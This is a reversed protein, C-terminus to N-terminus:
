DKSKIIKGVKIVQGKRSIKYFYVGKSLHKANIETRHSTLDYQSILKGDYLFLDLQFETSMDYEQDIDINIYNSIPNPFINILDADKTEEKTTTPILNSFLLFSKSPGIISDYNCCNVKGTVIYENNSTFIMQSPSEDYPSYVVLSSLSDGNESFYNIQTNLVTDSTENVSAIVIRNYHDEIFNTPLNLSYKEDQLLNLSNDFRFFHTNDDVSNRDRCLMGIDGNNLIESDLDIFYTALCSNDLAESTSEELINLDVDYTESKIFENDVIYFLMLEGANNKLLSGGKFSENEFTIQNSIEGENNVIFLRGEPDGLFVPRDYVALVAYQNFGIKEVDILALECNDPFQTNSILAGDSSFNFIEIQRFGLLGGAYFGDCVYTENTVAFLSFTGNENEFLNFKPLYQSSYAVRNTWLTDGQSNTKVLYTAFTCGDIVTVGPTYCFESAALLFGEDTTEILSQSVLNSQDPYFEYQAFLHNSALLIFIFLSLYNM